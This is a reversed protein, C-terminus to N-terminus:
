TRRLALSRVSDQTVSRHATSCCSTSDRFRRLTRILSVAVLECTLADTLWDLQSEREREVHDFCLSLLAVPFSAIGACFSFDLWRLSDWFAEMLRQLDSMRVERCHSRAPTAVRCRVDM